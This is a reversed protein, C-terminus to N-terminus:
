NAPKGAVIFSGDKCYVHGSACKAWTTSEFTIVTQCIDCIESVGTVDSGNKQSVDSETALLFHHKIIKSLRMPRLQVEPMDLVCKVVHYLQFASLDGLSFHISFASLLLFRARNVIYESDSNVSHKLYKILYILKSTNSAASSLSITITLKLLIFGLSNAKCCSKM